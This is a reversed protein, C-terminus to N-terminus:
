RPYSYKGEHHMSWENALLKFKLPLPLSICFRGDVMEIIRDAYVCIRLDHTVMM